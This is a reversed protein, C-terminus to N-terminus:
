ARRRWRRAGAAVGLMGLGAWAAPPLPVVAAGFSLNDFAGYRTALDGSMNSRVVMYAIAEDTTFGQYTDRGVSTINFTGLSVGGVGFLLVTVTGAASGGTNQNYRFFNAGVATVPDAGTFDIRVGYFNSGGTYANAVLFRDSPSGADALVGLGSGFVTNTNLSLAASYAFDNYAGTVAGRSTTTALGNFTDAPGVGSGVQSLFSAQSTYAVTASLAPVCAVGSVLLGVVGHARHFMM